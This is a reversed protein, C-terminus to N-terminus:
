DDLRPVLQLPYHLHDRSASLHPSALLSTGGAGTILIAQVHEPIVVADYTPIGSMNPTTYRTYPKMSPAIHTKYAYFPAPRTIYRLSPCVSASSGSPKAPM